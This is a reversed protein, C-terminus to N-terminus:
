RIAAPEHSTPSPRAHTDAVVPSAAADPDIACCGSAANAANAAATTATTATACCGSAAANANGGANGSTASPALPRALIEARARADERAVTVGKLWADDV